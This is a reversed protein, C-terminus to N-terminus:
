RSLAFFGSVFLCMIFVVSMLWASIWSSFGMLKPEWLRVCFSGASPVLFRHFIHESSRM